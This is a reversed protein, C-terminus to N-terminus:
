GEAFGLIRAFPVDALAGFAPHRNLRARTAAPSSLGALFRAM